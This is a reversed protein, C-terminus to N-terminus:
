AGPDEEPVVRAGDRVGERGVSTVVREGDELDARVETYEWNSLGAQVTRSELTGRQPLYVLVRAGEILAETPIRLVDARTERVIEVDASYGPLLGARDEAQALDVEVEVTRAQKERDLVYPAIRRVRGSCRRGSFADLTVCVPMGLQVEPADVEDIPASVYLCRDDILDVAPLTPIGPPSPTIFEGLEGNVEAVVGDFPARLLTREREAEAVRVRDRSVQAAARSARCGAEKAQAEGTARDVVDESVVRRQALQSQRDAERRAVEGLVCAEEARAAAALAESEALRVRAELDENWIALLLDGAKVRGGERVPLRAVQGGTAPALRARRCAMVTGARTNSVTAQVTGREVARLRVSIPEPRTLYHLGAAVGAGLVLLVLLRRVATPM